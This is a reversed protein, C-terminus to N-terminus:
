SRIQEIRSVTSCRLLTPEAAIPVTATQDRAALPAPFSVWLLPTGLLIVAISGFFDHARKVGPTDTFGARFEEVLSCIFRRSQKVGKVAEECEM